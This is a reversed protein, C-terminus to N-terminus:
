TSPVVATAQNSNVSEEGNSAVATTVYYYTTGSEVTSDTYKLTAVISSNIKTYSGGSETSRYVNYGSVTSTSANWTLAVSHQISTVGTGSLSVAVPSGTANSVISISGNVSGAATPHFQVSLILNQSPSLTVPVSAGAISYVSGSLTIHSITVNSNGTNTITVNQTASSTSTTVNGFSLSAPTISLTATAATGTGSLGISNPSNPANSIISINGSAAGVATPQFAVTMTTQQGPSVNLPLSIGTVSFAPNTETVQTITLTATRPNTILLIQSSNSGVVENGFSISTSSLQIGPTPSTTAAAALAAQASTVGTDTQLSLTGTVNGASTPEFWVQFSNTQGASLSLPLTLGSLSFQTSSLNAKTINVSINGTNAVSFTQSVKQGVVTSGFNLSGPTVQIAAQPSSSSKPGNASAGAACGNLVAVIAILLLVALSRCQSLGRVNCFFGSPQTQSLISRFTM